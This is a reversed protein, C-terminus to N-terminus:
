VYSFFLQRYATVAEPVPEKDNPAAEAAAWLREAFRAEEEPEPEIRFESTFMEPEHDRATRKRSWAVANRNLLYPRVPELLGGTGEFVAQAEDNTLHVFVGLTEMDDDEFIWSLLAGSLIPVLVVNPLGDWRNLVVPDAAPFELLWKYDTSM